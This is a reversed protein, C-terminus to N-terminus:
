ITPLPFLNWDNRHNWVNLLEPVRRWMRLYVKVLLYRSRAPWLTLCSSSRPSARCNGSRKRSLKPPSRCSRTERSSKINNPSSPIPLLRACRKEYFRYGTKPRERHSFFNQAAPNFARFMQLLKREANGKVLSELEPLQAFRPHKEGKPIEITAHFHMVDKEIWEPSRQFITEANNVRADIERRMLAM